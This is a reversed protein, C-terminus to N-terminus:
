PDQINGPSHPDTMGKWAGTEVLCDLRQLHGKASGSGLDPLRKDSFEQLITRASVTCSPKGDPINLNSSPCRKIRREKEGDVDEEPWRPGDEVRVADKRLLGTSQWPRV